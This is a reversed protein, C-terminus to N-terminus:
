GKPLSSPPLIKSCYVDGVDVGPFFWRQWNSVVWSKKLCRGETSEAPFISLYMGAKHGSIVLAGMGKDRDLPDFIIIDVYDEYLGGSPSRIVVGRGILDDYETLRTWKGMM